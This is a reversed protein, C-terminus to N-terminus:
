ARSPVALVAPTRPGARHVLRELDGVTDVDDCLNPVVAVTARLGAAVAHARFRRASGPGYLPAFAAPTPLALANTTGDAAEVLVFAGLEAAVALARLDCPRVCPLDANVVLTPEEPLGALGAAVAPGQGGGPDAVVEAGLEAALELAAPDPTVVRTPATAVCATLVDALMALSLRGRLDGPADLRQKGGSGKYPVVIAM